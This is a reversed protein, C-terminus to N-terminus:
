WQIVIVLGDGGDGGAGSAFGNDSAGGGGGGGGPQAGNAGAGGAEATRYYGGGGGTAGITSTTGATAGATAATGGATGGTGGSVATSSGSTGATAGTHSGGNGGAAATTSSAAAGAGGGGGTGGIGGTSPTTGNTGTTTAGAGGAVGAYLTVNPFGTGATSGSPSGSTLGGAGAGGRGMNLLAGFTSSTAGAAGNGATADTTVAAGGVGGAGVGVTVSSPVYSAVWQGFAFAGGAGGSGGSRSGTTANRAGSGGGGGGGWGFALVHKANANKNWTASGPTSFVDIQANVLQANLDTKISSWTIKKLVDSAASDVLPLMDADVPATKAAANKTILAIGHWGLYVVSTGSALTIANTNGNSNALVTTRTLTNTASYTGIGQEWANTSDVVYYPVTDNVACAASFRRHGALAGTLSIAGTGTTSTNEAIRPASDIFAM